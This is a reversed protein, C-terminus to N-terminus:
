LDIYKNSKNEACIWGSPIQLWISSELKQIGKCTVRTGTKLIANGFDDFIANEKANQTLNDFKLKQGNASQRVNMNDLLTYVKGIEYRNKPIIVTSSIEKNDFLKKETQRRNTLGEIIKGGSKNYALIKESIENKTRTGKCTLQDISGVNYAFSLLASAENDTWNYISNYKEVEKKFRELDSILLANAQDQTITMGPYVDSGYHGFGVTYYQESSLCKYATLRCGEYKKILEIGKSYDIM